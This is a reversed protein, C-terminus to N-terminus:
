TLENVPYRIPLCMNKDFRQYYFFGPSFLYLGPDQNGRKVGAVGTPLFPYKKCLIVKGTLFLSETIFSQM